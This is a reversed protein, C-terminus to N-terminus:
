GDALDELWVKEMYGSEGVSTIQELLVRKSLSKLWEPLTDDLAIILRGWDDSIALDTTEYNLLKSQYSLKGLEIEHLTLKFPYSHPEKEVPNIQGDLNRLDTHRVCVIFTINGPRQYRGGLRIFAIQWGGHISRHAFSRNPVTWGSQRLNELFDDYSM